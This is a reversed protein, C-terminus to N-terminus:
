NGLGNIKFTRLMFNIPGILFNFVCAIFNIREVGSNFVFSMFNFICLLFNILYNQGSCAEMTHLVATEVDLRCFRLNRQHCLM